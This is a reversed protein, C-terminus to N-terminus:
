KAKDKIKRILKFDIARSTLRVCNAMIWNMLGHIAVTELFMGFDGFGTNKILYDTQIDQKTIEDYVEQASNPASLEKGIDYVKVKYQNELKTKLEDLKSKNRAVLVLDSGKSVRIKALELRIENSTGLILATAM